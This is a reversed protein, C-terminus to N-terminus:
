KSINTQNRKNTKKTKSPKTTSGVLDVPIGTHKITQKNTQPQKTITQKPYPQTNTQKKKVKKEFLWLPVVTLWVVVQEV